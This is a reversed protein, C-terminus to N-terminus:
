ISFTKFYLVGHVLDLFLLFDFYHVDDIQFCVCERERKEEERKSSTVSQLVNM